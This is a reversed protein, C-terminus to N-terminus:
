RNQSIKTGVGRKNLNSKSGLTEHLLNKIFNFAHSIEDEFLLYRLFPPIKRSNKFEWYEKSKTSQIFLSKSQETRNTRKFSIIDSLTELVIYPHHKINPATYIM